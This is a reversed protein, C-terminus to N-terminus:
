VPVDARDAGLLKQLCHLVHEGLAVFDLIVTRHILFLELGSELAIMVHSFSRLDKLFPIRLM